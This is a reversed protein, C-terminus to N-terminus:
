KLPIKKRTRWCEEMQWQPKKGDVGLIDDGPIADGNSAEEQLEIRMSQKEGM